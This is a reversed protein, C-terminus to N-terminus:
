EDGRVPLHSIMWDHTQETLLECSEEWAARGKRNKVMKDVAARIGDHESILHSIMSNTLDKAFQRVESESYSTRTPM